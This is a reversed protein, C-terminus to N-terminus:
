TLWLSCLFSKKVIKLIKILIQKDNHNVIPSFCLVCDCSMVSCRRCTKAGNFNMCCLNDRTNRVIIRTSELYHRSDLLWDSRPGRIRSFCCPAPVRNPVRNRLRGKEAHLLSIPSTQVCAIGSSTDKFRPM